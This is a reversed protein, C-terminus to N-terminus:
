EVTVDRYRDSMSLIFISSSTVLFVFFVILFFLTSINGISKSKTIIIWSFYERGGYVSYSFTNRCWSWWLSTSISVYKFRSIKVFFILREISCNVFVNLKSVFIIWRLFIRTCTSSFMTLFIFSVDFWNRRVLYYVYPPNEKSTWQEPHPMDSTLVPREPKSEDDVSDFGTLHLLFRFLEPHSEPHITAEFLPLFLNTLLEQFNKIIGNARYVDSSFDFILLWFKSVLISCFESFVLFKFWGLSM